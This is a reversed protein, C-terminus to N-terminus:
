IGRMFKAISQKWLQKDVRVLLNHGANPFIVLQKSGQLNQYIENIEELTTWKDLKGQLILTPCEVAFAYTVPNHAFGNFGHQIGGWFVMLQTVPFTPINVAKLRSRVANVLRAFPAELIAAEPNLNKDKDAIAKLIAASGMSVGYLIYPRKLKSKEAYNMTLAVDESERVGITASNGSSAGLGRFDILLTDYDLNHFVQTPALLQKAKSGNNGPFLLVTGKSKNEAPIFWTDLWENNNISIRKTESKLGIESPKTSIVKRNQSNFHTLYYAGAYSLINLIIFAIIIFQYIRKRTKRRIKVAKLSKM